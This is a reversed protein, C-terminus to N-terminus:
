VKFTEYMIKIPSNDKAKTRGIVSAGYHGQMEKADELTDTAYLCLADDANLMAREDFILYTLKM